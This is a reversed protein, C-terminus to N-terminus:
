LKKITLFDELDDLAIRGENSSYYGQREFRKKFEEIKTKVESDFDEEECKFPELGISFGDPSIIDYEIKM